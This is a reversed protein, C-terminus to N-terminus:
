WTFFNGRLLIESEPTPTEAEGALASRWDSVWQRRREQPLERYPASILTAVRDPHDDLFARLEPEWREIFRRIGGSVANDGFGKHEELALIKAFADRWVPVAERRQTDM